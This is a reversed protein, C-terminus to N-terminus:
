AKNLFYFYDKYKESDPITKLDNLYLDTKKMSDVILKIQVLQSKVEEILLKVDVDEGGKTRSLNTCTKKTTEIKSLLSSIEVNKLDVEIRKNLLIDRILASFNSHFSKSYLDKIKEIEQKTLRVRFVESKKQDKPLPKRGGYEREKKM